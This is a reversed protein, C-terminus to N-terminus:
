LMETKESGEVIKSKGRRVLDAAFDVPLRVEEGLEIARGDVRFGPTPFKTTAVVLVTQTRVKRVPEAIPRDHFDM